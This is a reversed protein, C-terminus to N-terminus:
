RRTVQPRVTHDGFIGFVKNDESASKKVNLPDIEFKELSLFNFISNMVDVPYDVLQDYNVYLIRHDDGRSQRDQLRNLAIGVPVSGNQLWYEARLQPTKPLHATEPHGPNARYAREMSAIIDDIKRTMCICRADPVIEWLFDLYELWGRSKDVYVNKDTLTNCYSRLGEKCFNKAASDMLQRDQAAAEVCGIQRYSGIMFELLPSTASAYVEPHQALMAQMLESGSRPLSSNVHFHEM